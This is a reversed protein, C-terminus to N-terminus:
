QFIAPIMGREDELMNPDESDSKLPINSPSGQAPASKNNDEQEGHDNSQDNSQDADKRAASMAIAAGVNNKSPKGNKTTLVTSSPM